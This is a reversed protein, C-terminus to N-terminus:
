QGFRALLADVRKQAWRRAVLTAPGRGSDTPGSEAAVDVGEGPRLLASTAAAPRRVEVAGTLVLTSTRQKTVEVVWRTGRM